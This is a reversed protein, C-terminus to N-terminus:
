LPWKDRLRNLREELKVVTAVAAELESLSYRVERQDPSTPLGVVSVVEQSSEIAGWRGHVLNNRWHRMDHMERSWQEFVAHVEPAEAYKSVYLNEFYELKAYMSSESLKKTLLELDKGNNAWVIYLSLTVDLQGFAFLMKGVLSTARVELEKASLRVEM